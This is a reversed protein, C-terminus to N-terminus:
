RLYLVKQTAKQKASELRVYYLGNALGLASADLTATHRGAPLVGDVLRVLERGSVDFLALSVPGTRDLGFRLASTPNFPNPYAPDLAFAIPALDNGGGVSSPRRIWNYIRPLFRNLPETGNVGGISELPFGFTLTKYTATEKALGSTGVDAGGNGEYWMVRAAGNRPSLVAKAAPLGAGTGGGLFVRVGDFEPHGAVGRCYNAGGNPIVLEAGMYERWLRHNGLADSLYPSAMVLTGGNDLYATLVDAEFENIIDQRNNFTHWIVCRYNAIDELTVFGAEARDWRDMWPMTENGFQGVMVNTANINNSADVLLFPPWEVMFSVDQSSSVDGPQALINFTFTVPHAEFGDQVRFQFPAADNALRAGGDLNEFETTGNVVEIGADECEFNVIIREAMAYNRGNEVTVIVDIVEGAEARGDGDGAAADSITWDAVTVYPTDYGLLYNESQLVNRNSEQVWAVIALNDLLLEHWFNDPLRRTLDWTLRQNANINFTTGRWGPLMIIMADYHDTQGAQGRWNVHRENVSVFLTVNQFSQDATVAVSVRAENNIVRASLEILLPSATQQRQLIANSVAQATRSGTYQVGDICYWPISNVYNPANGYAERRGGQLGSGGNDAPNADHWPDGRSPWNMHYAIASSRELGVIQLGEEIAPAAAACPPCTTSTFDEFLVKRPYASADSALVLFAGLLLVLTLAVARSGIDIFLSRDM